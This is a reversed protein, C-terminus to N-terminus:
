QVVLDEARLDGMVVTVKSGPKILNNPNSFMCFYLRGEEPTMTTQRLSGVKPSSPVALKVGSAEDVLYTKLKPEGLIKVAKEPDTVRYRFDILHGAGSVMISEPRIGWKEEVNTPSEGTKAGPDLNQAQPACGQLIFIIIGMLWLLYVLPRTGRRFRIGSM